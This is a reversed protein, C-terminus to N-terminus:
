LWCQHPSLRSVNKKFCTKPDSCDSLRNHFMGSIELGQNLPFDQNTGGNHNGRGPWALLLKRLFAFVPEAQQVQLWTSSSPGPIRSPDM